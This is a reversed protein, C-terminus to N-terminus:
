SAARRRRLMMYLWAALLVVVAIPVLVSTGAGSSPELPVEQVASAWAAKPDAKHNAVNAFAQGRANLDSSVGTTHCSICPQDLTRQYEISASAPLAAAFALLGLAGLLLAAGLASRLLGVSRSVAPRSVM